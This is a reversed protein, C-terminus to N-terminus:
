LPDGNVDVANLQNDDPAESPEPIWPALCARDQTCPDTLSELFAFVLPADSLPSFSLNPSTLTPDISRQTV